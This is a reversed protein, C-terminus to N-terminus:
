KKIVKLSKKDDYYINIAYKDYMPSKKVVCQWHIKEGALACLSILYGAGLAVFAGYLKHLNMLPKHSDEEEEETNDASVINLMVDKLWKKVLGAEVIRRLFRDMHPKLPSNKQLGISIPMHIVCDLMIHLNREGRTEQDTNVDTKTGVEKVLHQRRVRLYQLFYINEYYAFEGKAVREVALDTDYIVEFKLGIKQGSVDLSTLFLQKIEEGWGGCAIHNDVLEEL